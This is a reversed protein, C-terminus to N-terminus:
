AFQFLHIFVGACVAFNVEKETKFSEHHDPASSEGEFLVDSVRSFAFIQICVLAFAFGIIFGSRFGCRIIKKPMTDLM